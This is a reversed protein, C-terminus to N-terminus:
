TRMREEAHWRIPFGRDDTIWSQSQFALFVGTWRAEAPHHVILGGDRWIGNEDAHHDRSGQNMHINHMGNGPEFGFVEDRLGPEPGWRIGWVCAFAGREVIAAEFLSALADTLDNAKGPRWGPVPRMDERRVLGGRVYDLALGDEPGRLRTFGPALDALRATFDPKDIAEIACLLAQVRGDGEVSRTNIAIRFRAGGDILAQFHPSGGHRESRTARVRGKLVGYGDRSM